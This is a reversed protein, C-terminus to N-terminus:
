VCNPTQKKHQSLSRFVIKYTTDKTVFVMLVYTVIAVIVQLVLGMILGMDCFGVLFSAIFMILSNFLPKWLDKIHEFFSYGFVQQSIRFLFLSGIWEVITIGLAIAITGYQVTLLLVIFNVILFAGEYFLNIESRGVAFYVQKDISSIFSPMRLICFIVLFPTSNVWKDTFLLILLPKAVSAIGLLLPFMVFASVAISKRAMSKLESKEDQLRSFPSIMVGTIAQGFITTAYGSYTYAKDYYALDESSYKKGIVLTRLLDSLGTVVGSLIIKSTFSYMKKFSSFSFSLSFHSSKDFAMVSVIIAMNLVNHAVLAWIGYGRIAMIIGVAGSLPVAIISRLFIKRFEMKRSYIGTQVAFVSNLFLVLSQIRLPWILTSTKYFHSIIPSFFFIIVYLVTAFVLSSILLTSIDKDEIDKRQIIATSVGSQVFIGAYNTIAVIIALNGFDEPMIIRALIIQVVLNIGQVSSKELLKWFLSGLIKRKGVSDNDNM